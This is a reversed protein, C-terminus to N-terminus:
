GVKLIDSSYLKNPQTIKCGCLCSTIKKCDKCDEDLWEFSRYKELIRSNQWLEELPTELINGIKYKNSPCLKLDGDETVSAFVIGAKCPQVLYQLDRKIKCLPLGDGTTVAKKYEGGLQNLVSLAENIEKINLELEKRKELGRGAPVFRDLVISEVDFNTFIYNGFDRFERFNKKTITYCVSTPINEDSLYELSRVSKEFSGKVDTLREHTKEFGHISISANNIFKSIKSALKKTLLSGNSVLNVEFGSDYAYKTIEVADPHYLPEGGFLSIEFVDAENLKDIVKKLSSVSKFDKKMYEPDVACFECNWNCGKTLDLNIFAPSKLKVM